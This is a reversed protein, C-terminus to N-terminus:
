DPCGTDCRVIKVVVSESIYEHEKKRVFNTDNSCKMAYDTM